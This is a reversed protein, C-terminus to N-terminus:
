GAADDTEHVGHGRVPHPRCLAPQGLQVKAVKGARADHVQEAARAREHCREDDTRADAAEASELAADFHTDIIANIAPNHQTIRDIFHQTAEKASITGGAINKALELAPLKHLKM